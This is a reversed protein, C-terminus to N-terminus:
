NMDEDYQYDDQQVKPEAGSKARGCVCDLGSRRCVTPTKTEDCDGDSQIGTERVPQGGKRMLSVRVRGRPMQKYTVGYKEEHSWDIGNRIENKQAKISRIGGREHGCTAMGFYMYESLTM